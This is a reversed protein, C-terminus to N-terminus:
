NKFENVSENSRVGGSSFEVFFDSKQTSFYKRTILRVHNKGLRIHHGRTRGSHTKFLLDSPLDELVHMIKEVEVLDNIQRRM